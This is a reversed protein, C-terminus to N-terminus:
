LGYYGVLGAGPFGALSPLTPATVYGLSLLNSYILGAIVAYGTDNPHIQDVSFYTLNTTDQLRTDGQTDILFDVVGGSSKIFANVTDKTTNNAGSFSAKNLMTCCGVKLGATAGRRAAIYNTLDTIIQASTRGNVTIDNTGPPGILLVKNTAWANSAFDTDTITTSFTISTGPQVTAGALGRNSFKPQSACLRAVQPPWSTLAHISSQSGETISDAVCNIYTPETSATCRYQGAAWAYFTTRETSNLYRDYVFVAAVMSGYLPSGGTLDAGFSGGTTTGVGNIQVSTAEEPTLGLEINTAGNSASSLIGLNSAGFHGTDTENSGNWHKQDPGSAFYDQANADLTVVLSTSSAQVWRTLIVFITNARKDVSLGNAITFYNAPSQIVPLASPTFIAGSSQGVWTHTSDASLGELEGTLTLSGSSQNGNAVGSAGSTSQLAIEGDTFTGSTFTGAITSDQTFIVYNDTGVSILLPKKNAAGATMVIGHQRGTWTSIRKGTGITAMDTPRADWWELIDSSFPVAM